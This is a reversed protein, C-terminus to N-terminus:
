LRLVNDFYKEREQLGIKLIKKYAYRCTNIDLKNKCQEHIRNELLSFISENFVQILPCICTACLIRLTLYPLVKKRM